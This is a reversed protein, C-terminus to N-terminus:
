GLFEKVFYQKLAELDKLKNKWQADQTSYTGDTNKIVNDDNMWEDFDKQIEDSWEFSKNENFAKFRKVNYTNKM